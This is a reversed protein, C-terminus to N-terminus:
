CAEQEVTDEVIDQKEEQEFELELEPVKIGLNQVTRTGFYRDFNIGMQNYEDDSLLEITDRVPRSRDLNNFDYFSDIIEDTVLEKRRQHDSVFEQIKNILVSKIEGTLMEGSSYRKAIDQLIDDELLFYLLYQYSVDRELDAGNERQLELTEGGGSYAHKNIKNKIQKDTDTLFVVTNEVTSSMKNEIGGLSPLFESHIVAPKIFDLGKKKMDGAFDRALRFYPDQDIAMPVLCFISKHEKGFIKQFSSSFAPISQCTPWGIQGVTANTSDLGFIAKITSAKTSHDMMIRNEILDENIRIEESNNFIFTKAPDFGRAIIDKANERGMRTYDSLRGTKKFYYKEDDSMQIVLICGFADQLYKTFEFPIMHGLHMSESSPGRGTYLYIEQGNEFTDLLLELDRHSFFLGRRLFHHVRMNTAKEIRKILPGPIAQSGFQKILKMYNIGSESTVEWPTVTQESEEVFSM